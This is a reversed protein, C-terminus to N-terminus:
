KAIVMKKLLNLGPGEAKVIYVGSPLITGNEDKCDYAISETQSSGSASISISKLLVGKSDYIKINVTGAATTKYAINAKEGRNPNIYGAKGGILKLYAENPGVVINDKDQAYKRTWVIDWGAYAYGTVYVNGGADVAIGTGADDGYGAGNYTKTWGENGNKDYKRTWIDTGQGTVTERGTVYVSGSTDVTIGYGMAESNATGIYTKTWLENGGTDYKRTWLRKFGGTIEEYGTVYVNGAADVAIGQGVANYHYTPTYTKTWLEKGNTDYKRTWIDTWISGINAYGTVYVNGFVDVAIGKGANYCGSAGYTKTWLENGNEDYKRTWIDTGQGTAEFGTVYINGGADVAIALGMDYDNGAGNYTRTWLENGNADYKRTWINISQGAVYEGGTVYVNGFTDVAIARGSDTSNGAGNYTKTWIENGNKDYKRTWINWGQGAVDEYGTVYVNGGADVAIGQGLCNSYARNYTKTWTEFANGFVPLAVFVFVVAGALRRWKVQMIGGKKPTYITIKNYRIVPRKKRMHCILVSLKINSYIIMLLILVLHKVQLVIINQSINPDYIPSSSIESLIFM